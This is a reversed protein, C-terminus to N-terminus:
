WAVVKSSGTFALFLGIVAIYMVLWVLGSRAFAATALLISLPLVVSTTAIPRHGARTLLIAAVVPLVLLWVVFAPWLLSSYDSRSLLWKGLWITVSGVIVVPWFLASGDPQKTM